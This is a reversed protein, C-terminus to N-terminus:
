RRAIVDYVHWHKPGRGSPGDYEREDLQLVTLGSVWSEVDDRTHFTMGEVATEGTAWSDRDGFLQAALIGGPHLSALLRQWVEVLDDERLFPLSLCALVLDVRPLDASCLDACVTTLGDGLEADEARTTVTDVATQERDIATVHFGASLLHLTETGDGCGLDVAHHVDGARRAATSLHALADRLLPRPPRDATRRYFAAWDADDTSPSTAM